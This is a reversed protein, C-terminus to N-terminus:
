ERTHSVSRRLEDMWESEPSHALWADVAAPDEDSWREFQRAAQEVPWNQSLADIFAEPTGSENVRAHAVQETFRVLQHISLWSKDQINQWLHAATQSSLEGFNNSAFDWAQAAAPALPGEDPLSGLWEISSQAGSDYLIENVSNRVCEFQAGAPFKESTLYQTAADRDYRLWGNFLGALARSNAGGDNHEEVWRLASAPDQEAWGNLIDFDFASPARGVNAHYALAEEPDLRGWQRAFISYEIPFGRGEERHLDAFMERIAPADEPRMTELLLTLDRIRDGFTRDTLAGRCAEVFAPNPEGPKGAAAIEGLRALLNATRPNTMLSSISGHDGDRRSRESAKAGAGFAAEKGSDDVPGFKQSLAWAWGIAAVAILLLNLRKPSFPKGIM